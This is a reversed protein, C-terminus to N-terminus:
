RKGNVITRTSNVKSAEKGEEKKEEEDGKRHPSALAEFVGAVVAIAIIGGIFWVKMRM